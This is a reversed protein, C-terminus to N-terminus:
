SKGELVPSEEFPGRPHSMGQTTALGSVTEVASMRRPNHRWFGSARFCADDIHVAEYWQLVESHPQQAHAIINVDVRWEGQLVPDASLSHLFEPAILNKTHM